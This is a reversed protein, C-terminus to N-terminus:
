GRTCSACPRTPSAARSTRFTQTCFIAASLLCGTALTDDMIPARSKGQRKLDRLSSRNWTVGSQGVINHILHSSVTSDDHWRTPSIFEYLISLINLTEKETSVPILLSLRGGQYLYVVLRSTQCARVFAVSCVAVFLCCFIFLLSM